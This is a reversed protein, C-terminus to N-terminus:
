WGLLTFFVGTYGTVIWGWGEFRYRLFYLCVGLMRISLSVSLVTLYWGDQRLTDSITNQTSLEYAFLYYTFFALDFVCVALVALQLEDPYLHKNQGKM